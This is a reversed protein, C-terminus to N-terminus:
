SGGVFRCRGMVKLGLACDGCARAKLALACGRAEKLRAGDERADGRRPLPSRKGLARFDGVGHGAELGRM